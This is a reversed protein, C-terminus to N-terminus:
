SRLKHELHQLAPEILAHRGHEVLVLVSALAALLFADHRRLPASPSWTALVLVAAIGVAAGILVEPLSHMDLAIRSGGIALATAIAACFGASRGFLLLALGGYAASASATHGSPSRVDIPLGLVPFTGFLIKLVLIAAFAGGIAATWGAQARLGSRVALFLAIVVLLPLTIAADGFDTLTHLPAERSRLTPGRFGNSSCVPESAKPGTQDLIM